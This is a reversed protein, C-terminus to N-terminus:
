AYLFVTKVEHNSPSIAKVYYGPHIVRGGIIRTVHMHSLPEKQVLFRVYSILYKVMRGTVSDSRIATDLNVYSPAIGDEVFEILDEAFHRKSIESADFRIEITEANGETDLTQIPLYMARLTNGYIINMNSIMTSVSRVFRENDILRVCYDEALYKHSLLLDGFSYYTQWWGPPPIPSESVATYSSDNDSDVYMIDDSEPFGSSSVSVPYENLGSAYSSVFVQGSMNFFSRENDHM